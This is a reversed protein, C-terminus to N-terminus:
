ERFAGKSKGYKGIFIPIFMARFLYNVMKPKFM